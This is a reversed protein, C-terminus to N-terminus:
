DVEIIIQSKEVKFFFTSVRGCDPGGGNYTANVPLSYRSGHEPVIRLYDPVCIEHGVYGHISLMHKIEPNIIDFVISDIHRLCITIAFLSFPNPEVLGRKFLPEIEAISAFGQTCDAWISTFTTSTKECYEKLPMKYRNNNNPFYANNCVSYINNRPIGHKALFIRTKHLVSDVILVNADLDQVNNYMSFKLALECFVLNIYIKNDYRPGEKDYVPFSM